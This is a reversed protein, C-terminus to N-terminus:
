CPPTPRLLVCRAACDSSTAPKTTPRYSWPSVCPISGVLDAGRVSPRHGVVLNREGGEGRRGCPEGCEHGDQEATKGTTQDAVRQHLQLTVTRAGGLSADAREDAGDDGGETHAHDSDQHETSKALPFLDFTPLLVVGGRSRDEGRATGARMAGQRPQPHDQIRPVCSRVSM